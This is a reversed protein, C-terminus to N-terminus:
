TAGVAFEHAAGAREVDAALPRAQMLQRWGLRTGRSPTGIESSSTRISSSNLHRRGVLVPRNEGREGAATEPMAVDLPATEIGGRLVGPDLADGLM